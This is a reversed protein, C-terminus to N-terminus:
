QEPDNLRVLIYQVDLNLKFGLPSSEVINHMVEQSYDSVGFFLTKMNTHTEMKLTGTIAQAVKNRTEAKTCRRNRLCSQKQILDSCTGHEFLSEIKEQISALQEHVDEENTTDQSKIIVLQDSKDQLMKITRYPWRFVNFVRCLRKLYSESVGLKIAARQIPLNFYQSIDKFSLNM